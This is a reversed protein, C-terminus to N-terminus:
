RIGLATEINNLEVSTILNPNLLIWNTGDYVFDKVEYYEWAGKIDTSTAGSSYSSRPITLIGIAGTNNVNLTCASDTTNANTFKVSITAGTRLVFGDCAVVKATTGAATSCTGYAHIANSIENFTDANFRTGETTVTGEARSMDYTNSEGAVPTMTVRGPHEVVRDEFYNAM